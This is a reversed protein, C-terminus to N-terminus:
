DGWDGILEGVGEIDKRGLGPLEQTQMEGPHLVGKLAFDLYDRITMPGSWFDEM